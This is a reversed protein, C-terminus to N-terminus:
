TTRISPLATRKMFPLLGAGSLCFIVMLVAFMSSLLLVPFANVAYYTMSMTYPGFHRPKLRKVSRHSLSIVYRSPDSSSRIWQSISNCTHTADSSHQSAIDNPLAKVVSPKVSKRIPEQSSGSEVHAASHRTLLFLVIAIHAAFKM